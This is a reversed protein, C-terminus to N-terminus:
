RALHAAVAKNLEARRVVREWTRFDGDFFFLSEGSPNLVTGRHGAQTISMQTHNTM